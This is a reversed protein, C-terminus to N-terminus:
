LQRSSTKQLNASDWMERNNVSETRQENSICLWDTKSCTRHKQTMGANNDAIKFIKDVNTVKIATNAQSQIVQLSFLVIWLLSYYSVYLLWSQLFVSAFHTSKSSDIIIIITTNTTVAHCVRTIFQPM